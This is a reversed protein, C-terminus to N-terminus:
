YRNWVRSIEGGVNGDVVIKYKNKEDKAYIVTQDRKHIFKTIENSPLEFFLLAGLQVARRMRHAHYDWGGFDGLEHDLNFTHIKGIFKPQELYVIRRDTINFTGAGKFM